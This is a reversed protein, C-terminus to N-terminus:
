EIVYVVLGHPLCVIMEGVKSVMGMKICAHAECDADTIWAEGNKIVLTNYGLSTEITTEENKNLYYEAFEYGNISLVVRNGSHQHVYLFAEVAACLLLIVLLLIVWTRTM